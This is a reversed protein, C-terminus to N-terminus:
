AYSFRMNGCYYCCSYSFCCAFVFVVVTSACFAERTGRRCRYVRELSVSIVAMRTYKKTMSCFSRVFSSDFCVFRRVLVSGSMCYMCVYIAIVNSAAIIAPRAASVSVAVVFVGDEDVVIHFYYSVLLECESVNFHVFGVANTYFHTHLHTRTHSHTYIHMINNTCVHPSRLALSGLFHEFIQISIGAHTHAHTYTYMCM